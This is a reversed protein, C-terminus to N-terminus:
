TADERPHGPVRPPATRGATFAKAQLLSAPCDIGVARCAPPKGQAVASRADALLEKALAAAKETKGAAAYGDLLAAGVGRLEPYKKAGRYAEELLPLALDLKGADRYAWALNTMSALTDPHEPGLKAKM